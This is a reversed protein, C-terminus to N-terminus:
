NSGDIKLGKKLSFKRKIRKIKLIDKMKILWNNGLKEAKLKKSVILKRIHDPTFGAINAAELTTLYDSTRKIM